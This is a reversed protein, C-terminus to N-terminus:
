KDYIAYNRVSGTKVPNTNGRTNTVHPAVSYYALMVMCVQYMRLYIVGDWVVWALRYM